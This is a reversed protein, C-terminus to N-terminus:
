TLTLLENVPQAIELWIGARKSGRLPPEDDRPGEPRPGWDEACARRRHRVELEALGGDKTNAAFM